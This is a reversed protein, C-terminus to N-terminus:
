PGFATQLMAQIAERDPLMVSAGSSPVRWGTTMSSDIAFARITGSGGSVAAALPVYGLARDLTIDTQVMRSFQTYLEPVRRLGDLSIVKAFIARVVEQHRRLRDYDGSNRRMRVYCHAIWGDMHRLTGPSYRYWTGGCEDNLYGTIEVDIGGLADIGAIFGGFDIRAYNHIPIGFNYLITQRLMEPGGRPDAVNIRDVRWGPVYVYLDRPISLMSVTNASPDLSLVMVTDTRYGGTYPRQDSGLLVINLVDDAFPIPPVPRPIDIASAEVPGPFNEWPDVPTATPLPTPTPLPTAEPTATQPLPIFPTPTPSGAPAGPAQPLNPVLNAIGAPLVCASVAVGVAALIACVSVSRRRKLRSARNAAM